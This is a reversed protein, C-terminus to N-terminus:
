SEEAGGRGPKNRRAAAFMYAIGDHAPTDRVVAEARFWHDPDKRDPRGEREWMAYAIQRVFEQRMM